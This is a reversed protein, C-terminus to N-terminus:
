FDAVQLPYWQLDKLHRTAQYAAQKFLLALFMRGPEDIISVSGIRDFDASHIKLLPVGGVPPNTFGTFRSVGITISLGFWDPYDLDRGLYDSTESFSAGTLAADDWKQKLKGNLFVSPCNADLLFQRRGLAKMDVPLRSGFEPYQDSDEESSGPPLPLTGDSGRYQPPNGRYLLTGPHPARHIKRNTFPLNATLIPASALDQEDYIDRRTLLPLDINFEQLAAVFAQHEESGEVFKPDDALRTSLRGAANPQLKCPSLENFRELVHEPFTKISSLDLFDSYHIFIHM